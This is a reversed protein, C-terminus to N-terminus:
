LPPVAVTKRLFHCRPSDAQWTYTRCLCHCERYSKANVKANKHLQQQRYFVLGGRLGGPHRMGFRTDTAEGEHHLRVKAMFAASGPSRAGCAIRTARLLLPLRLSIVLLHTQKGHAHVASAIANM